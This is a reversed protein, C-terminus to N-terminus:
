CTKVYLKLAEKLETLKNRSLPIQEGNEMTILKNNYDAVYGLNILYSRHSKYFMTGKLEEEMQQLSKRIVYSNDMTKINVNVNQAEISIIDKHKVFIEKDFDKILIKKNQDMECQVDQLAGILKKENVPKALFRFADVEYGELAFEVHSTLFILIVDQNYERLKKATSIGDLQKMEIDMFILEFTQPNKKYAELFIEGSPFPEIVVDLSRYYKILYNKLQERFINEDDCIAIRM